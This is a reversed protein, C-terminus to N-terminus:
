VGWNLEDKADYIISGCHECYYFKKGLQPLKIYDGGCYCKHWIM